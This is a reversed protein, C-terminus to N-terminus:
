KKSFGPNRVFGPIKAKKMKALVLEGISSEALWQALRIGCFCNPRTQDFVTDTEATVYPKGAM